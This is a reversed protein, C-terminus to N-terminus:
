LRTKVACSTQWRQLSIFDAENQLLQESYRPSDRVKRPSVRVVFRSVFFVFEVRIVRVADSYRVVFVGM